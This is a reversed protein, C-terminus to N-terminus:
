SDTNMFESILFKSYSSVLLVKDIIVGNPIDLVWNMQYHSLLVLILSKNGPRSGTGNVSIAITTNAASLVRSWSEIDGNGQNSSVVHVEYQCNRDKANVCSYTTQPVNQYTPQGVIDTANQQIHCGEYKATPICIKPMNTFLFETTM